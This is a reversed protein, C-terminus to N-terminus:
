RATAAIWTFPQVGGSPTTHLERRTAVIEFDRGLVGALDDASYRAVPLGSCYEPGDEAFTAMIVAGGALIGEALNELYRDRDAHDTLFHFVARDHWLGYRRAPRWELVDKHLWTVGPAEGIRAQADRLAAESVDLVTVDGFGGAVLRDVLPSSGGGIDIVPATAEVRLLATLELSLTPEAQFWSMGTFSRSSYADDWHRAKIGM